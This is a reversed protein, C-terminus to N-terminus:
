SRPTSPPGAADKIATVIWRGNVDGTDGRLIAREMTIVLSKRVTQGGPLKVPASVTVDKAVLEGDYKAIDVHEPGSNISKDVVVTESAHTGNADDHAPARPKSALPTRREPSVSTIDFSTVIGDTNPEFAVAAFGALTTKDRLRSAGFFQTLIPQESASSCAVLMAAALLFVPHRFM